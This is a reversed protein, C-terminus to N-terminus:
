AIVCTLLGAALTTFSSKAAPVPAKGQRLPMLRPTAAVDELDAQSSLPRNSFPHTLLKYNQRDIRLNQKSTQQVHTIMFKGFRM